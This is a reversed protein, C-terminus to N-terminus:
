FLEKGETKNNQEMELKNKYPSEILNVTKRRKVKSREVQVDVKPIPMINNPTFSTNLFSTIINYFLIRLLYDFSYLFCYTSSYIYSSYM